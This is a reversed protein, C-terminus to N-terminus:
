LVVGEPIPLCCDRLQEIDAQIYSWCSTECKHGLIEQIISIPIGAQFLRTGLGRRLAHLGYGRYELDGLVKNRLVLFKYMIFKGKLQKHPFVSQVFVFEKAQIPRAFLLYRSISKAVNNHIPLSVLIGTKSQIFSIKRDNWNLCKMKLEVIDRCRMGTYHILTIIAHMMIDEPNNLNLSHLLKHVQESTFYKVETIKKASKLRMINSFDKDVINEKYLWQFYSKPGNLAKSVWFRRPKAFLKLAELVNESTLEKFNDLQEIQQICYIFQLTKEYYSTITDYRYECSELYIKFKDLSEKISVHLSLNKSRNLTIKFEESVSSIDQLKAAIKLLEVSRKHRRIASKSAHIAELYSLTDHNYKELFGLIDGSESHCRSAIKAVTSFKQQYDEITGGARGLLELAAVSVKIAQNLDTIM